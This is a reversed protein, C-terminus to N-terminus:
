IQPSASWRCYRPFHLFKPIPKLTLLAVYRSLNTVSHRLAIHKANIIQTSLFLQSRFM